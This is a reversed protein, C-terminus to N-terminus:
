PDPARPVFSGALRGHELLAGVLGRRGPRDQTGAGDQRAQRQGAEVRVRTELVYWIPKWYQGTAEM